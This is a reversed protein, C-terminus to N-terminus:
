FARWLCNGMPFANKDLHVGAVKLIQAQNQNLVLDATNHVVNSFESNFTIM